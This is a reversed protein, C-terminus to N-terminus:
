NFRVLEQRLIYGKEGVEIWPKSVPEGGGDELCPTLDGLRKCRSDLITDARFVLGVGAAYQEFVYRREILNDDDAQQVTLVDDYSFAGITKPEGIELVRGVWNTYMEITETGVEVEIDDNFFQTPDWSTNSNLPFRLKVLRLNEETRYAFHGDAETTWIDTLQWPAGANRRFSREITFVSDGSGNSTLGTIRELVFGSFTDLTNGGPADDFIISDTRYELEQGIELPFYGTGDPPEVITEEKCASLAVVVLSCVVLACRM